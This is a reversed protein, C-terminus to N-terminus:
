TETSLTGALALSDFSDPGAALPSVSHVLRLSPCWRRLLDGTATTGDGTGAGADRACSFFRGPTTTLLQLDRLPLCMLTWTSIAAEPRGAGLLRARADDAAETRGRKALQWVARFQSPRRRVTSRERTRRRGNTQAVLHHGHDNVNDRDDDHAEFWRTRGAAEKARTSLPVAVTEGLTSSSSAIDHCYPRRAIYGCEGGTAAEM